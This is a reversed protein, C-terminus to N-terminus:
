PALIYSMGVIDKVTRRDWTNFGGGNANFNMEHINIYLGDSRQDVSEVWAVHGISGAGQVGPQFVVISRPQADVVVTWGTNRASDAWQWADGTLAPYMGTAAHFDEYSGWTCNGDAGANYSRTQGTSRGTPPNTNCDGLGPAYSNFSPTTTFYDAIWQGGTLKDWTANGNVNTGGQVQCEVDIPTGTNVRQLVAYQTGPGGRLAVEDMTVQYSQSAWASPAALGIGLAGIVAVTAAIRGVPGATRPRPRRTDSSSDTSDNRMKATNRDWIPHLQVTM